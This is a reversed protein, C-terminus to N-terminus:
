DPHAAREDGGLEIGLTKLKRYLHTRELGVREALAAVKGGVLDLQAELYAREFRDRAERYPLSLLDEGM